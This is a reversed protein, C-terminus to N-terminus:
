LLFKLFSKKRIHPSVQEERHWNDSAPNEPNAPNPAPNVLNVLNEPNSTQKEISM